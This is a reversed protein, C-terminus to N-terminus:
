QPPEPVKRKKELPPKLADQLREREADRGEKQPDAAKDVPLEPENQLPDPQQTQAMRDAFCAVHRFM